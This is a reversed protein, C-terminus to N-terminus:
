AVLYQIETLLDDEQTKAPNNLYYERPASNNTLGNEELYTYMGCIQYFSEMLFALAPDHELPEALNEESQCLAFVARLPVWEEVDWRCGTEGNFLKSWTPWHHAFYNGNGDRIVLTADDSLSRWPPPFRSSATSKGTGGPAALIVGEGDICALAGHLLVGGDPLTLIVRQAVTDMQIVEMAMSDEAQPIICVPDNKDPLPVLRHAKPTDTGAVTVFITRGKTATGLCMLEALRTVTEEAEPDTAHLLFTTGDALTLSPFSQNEDM